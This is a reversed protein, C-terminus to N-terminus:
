DHANMERLLSNLQSENLTRPEGPERSVPAQMARRMVEHLSLTESQREEKTQRGAQQPVALVQYYPAQWAILGHEILEARAKGFDGLRVLTKMRSESYWSVGDRNGVCVLFLYLTGSDASVGALHGDKVLRPDIWNFRAPMLRRREPCIVKSEM